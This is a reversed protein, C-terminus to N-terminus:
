FTFNINVLVPGKQQEPKEDILESFGLGILTGLAAGTLVDSFWHWNSHIRQMGTIVAMSYAPIGIRPGYLQNLATAAAFSGSTHGSPFSRRNQHGPRDRKVMLKVAFTIAANTVMTENFIQLRDEFEPRPRDSTWYETLIYANGLLLNVGEGYLDAMQSVPEPMLKGQFRSQVYSDFYSLGAIGGATIALAAPRDFSNSIGDGIRDIYDKNGAIATSYSSSVIIIFSIIFYLWKKRTPCNM